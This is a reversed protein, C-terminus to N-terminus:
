RRRLPKSAPEKFRREGTRRRYDGAQISFDRCLRRDCIRSLIRGDIRDQNTTIITPMENNYRYNIIQYLKEEAWPTTNETGLDDLILLPANRIREFLYDYEVGSTPAYAARLHDLLDPVVAFIVQIGRAFAEHAIAAALHTKGCGYDGRFLIWGQPDKAFEWAFAFAEKVGPVNKDFTHFTLRKFADLNSLPRQEELRREEEERMRCECAIPRGFDPHGVSVDKRM